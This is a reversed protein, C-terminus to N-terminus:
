QIKNLITLGGMYLMRGDGFIQLDLTVSRRFALMALVWDNVPNMTGEWQSSVLSLTADAVIRPKILCLAHDYKIASNYSRGSSYPVVSVASLIESSADESKYCVDNDVTEIDASASAGSGSDSDFFVQPSSRYGSGAATMSIGSISATFEDMVAEATVTCILTYVLPVTSANATLVAYFSISLSPQSTYEGGDLVSSGSISYFGAYASYSASISANRIPGGGSISVVCYGPISGSIAGTFGGPNTIKVAAIKAKLTGITATATAGEGGGGVIRVSPASKYGAGGSALTLRKLAQGPTVVAGRLLYAGNSGVIQPATGSAVTISPVNGTLGVDFVAANGKTDTFKFADDQAQTLGNVNGVRMSVSSPSYYQTGNHFKLKWGTSTDGIVFPPVDCTGLRNPDTSIVLEPM